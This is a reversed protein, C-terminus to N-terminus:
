EKKANEPIRELWIEHWWSYISRPCFMKCNSYRSQCWVGELLFCPNKMTVLKGTKEDIFKGLRTRVRYTGGCYPVMEADFGLGRNKGSTDLTALIEKYSKVRILEGPQLNLAIMPTPQGAPITGSKRPYAMGGWVAQFKDYFWRLPRGLGIGANSLNYFGAYVLGRLVQGFTVNGSTYDQLYQRIDWTSLATTFDLVQTGQCTYRTGDNAQQEDARTGAL